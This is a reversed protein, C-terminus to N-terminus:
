EASFILEGCSLPDTLMLGVESLLHGTFGDKGNSRVSSKSGQASPPLVSGGEYWMELERGKKAIKTINATGDKTKGINLITIRYSEVPKKSIPHLERNDTTNDYPAFPMVTLEIGNLFKIHTFQGEFCLEQGKGTIFQGQGTQVVLGLGKMERRIAKDVEAMGQRGTLGVFKVDGGSPNVNQSLDFLFETIIDYSLYSYYRINAPAIQERLGAGQKIVRGNEGAMEYSNDSLKNANAYMLLNDIQKQHTANARWETAVTWFRTKKEPNAPDFIDMVAYDSAASGTVTYETRITTLVNELTIGTSFGFTGGRDSFEEVATWQKSFRAGPSIYQSPIFKTNDGTMLQVEYVWSTGSRYGDSRVILMYDRSDSLIQNNTEFIKEDVFIRFTQLGIGTTSSMDPSVETVNVTRTEDAMIEWRYESKDIYKTNGLGGTLLQLTKEYYSGFRRTMFTGMKAPETYFARQLQSSEVMGHFSEPKKLQLQNIKIQTM